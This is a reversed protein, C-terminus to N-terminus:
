ITIGFKIAANRILEMRSANPEEKGIKQMQSTLEMFKETKGLVLYIGALTRENIFNNHGTNGRKIIFEEFDEESNLTCSEELVAKIDTTIQEFHQTFLGDIHYDYWGNHTASLPRLIRWFHGTYATAEENPPWLNLATQVNSLTIGFQISVRKVGKDFWKLDRQLDIITITREADKRFQSRHKQFGLPELTTKLCDILTNYPNVM